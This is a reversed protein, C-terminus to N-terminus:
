RRRRPSYCVRRGGDAFLWRRRPPPEPVIARVLYAISPRPSLHLEPDFVAGGSVVFRLSETRSFPQQRLAGDVDLEDLASRADELDLAVAADHQRSRRDAPERGVALDLRQDSRSRRAARSGAQPLPSFPAHFMQLRVLQPAEPCGPAFPELLEGPKEFSQRRFRQGERAPVALPLAAGDPKRRRRFRPELGLPQSQTVVLAELFALRDIAVGPIPPRDRREEFHRM